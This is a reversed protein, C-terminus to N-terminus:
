EKLEKRGKNGARGPPDRLEQFERCAMLAEIARCVWKEKQGLSEMLGPNAMKGRPVACAQIDPLALGEMWDQNDMRGTRDLLVRYVRLVKHGKRDREELADGGEEIDQEALPVVSERREKNGRVVRLEPFVMYDWNVSQDQFVRRDLLDLKVPHEAPDRKELKEM